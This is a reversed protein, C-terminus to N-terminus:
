SGHEKTVLNYYNQACKALTFNELIYDRPNYNPLSELFLEFKMDILENTVSGEFKMGCREDFYPVSTAPCQITPDQLYFWTPMDFVFCPLGASLIQMYAMGQSETNTVLIAFTHKKTAALLDEEQYSGYTFVEHPINRDTLIRLAQWLVGSNRGKFYVLCSMPKKTEDPIWRKTNVGVPWIDIETDSLIQFRKYLRYVWESPVIMRQAFSCIHPAENPIVFLNPGYVTKAPNLSGIWPIMQLAGHYGDVDVRNDYVEIDSLEALGAKLNQVVVGPGRHNNNSYHLIIRNKM